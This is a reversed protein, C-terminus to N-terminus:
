KDEKSIQNRLPNGDKDFMTTQKDLFTKVHEYSSIVKKGFNYSVMVYLLNLLSEPFILPNFFWFGMSCLLLIWFVVRGLSVDNNKECILYRYNLKAM